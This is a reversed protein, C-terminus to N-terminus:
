GGRSRRMMWLLYGIGRLRRGWLSKKSFAILATLTMMSLSWNMPARKPMNSKRSRPRYDSRSPPKPRQEGDAFDTESSPCPQLPSSSTSPTSNPKNSKVSARTTMQTYIPHLILPSSLLSTWSCARACAFFCLSHFSPNTVMRSSFLRYNLSQNNQFVLSAGPSRHRSSM